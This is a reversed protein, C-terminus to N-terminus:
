QKSWGKSRMCADFARVDSMGWGQDGPGSSAPPYLLTVERRCETQDRYLQEQSRGEKSVWNFGLEPPHPLEMGCGALMIAGAACISVKLLAKSVDLLM